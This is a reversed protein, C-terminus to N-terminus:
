PSTRGAHRGPIHPSPCTRCSRLTGASPAWPYAFICRYRDRSRPACSFRQPLNAGASVQWSLHLVCLPYAKRGKACNWGYGRTSVNLRYIHHCSRSRCKRRRCSLAQHHLPRKVQCARRTPCRRCYWRLIKLLYHCPSTRM